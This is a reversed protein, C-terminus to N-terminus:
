VEISTIREIWIYALVIVIICLTMLVKGTFSSYMVDIYDPAVLRLFAIIVIPTFTIIMGELKKQSVMVSIENEITLKEGIISATKNMAESFDGGTERCTTYVQVFNDVDEIKTRYAFDKLVEIDTKGALKLEMNIKKLEKLIISKEDYIEVLSDYAELLSERMHRGTSFSSSISNLLDRFQLKLMKKNQKFKFEKFLNCVPKYLLPVSVLVFFSNYFLIGITISVFILLLLIKAQEPKSIEYDCCNM